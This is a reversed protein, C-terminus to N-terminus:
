FFILFFLIAIGIRYYGFPSFDHHSIFRLLWRIALLAVLFSVGFGLLLLFIEQSSFSYASQVLDLGTAGIMTPVALLFSFEVITKRKMGLILGGVITAAARSLGPIIALAQFLGI